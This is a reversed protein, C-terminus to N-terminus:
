LSKLYTGTHALESIRWWKPIVWPEMILEDGCSEREKGWPGKGVVGRRRSSRRGTRRACVREPPRFWLDLLDGVTMRAGVAPALNAHTALAKLERLADARSGHVTRTVWRRRKTDPDTGAYVRLEFSERGRQRISGRVIDM